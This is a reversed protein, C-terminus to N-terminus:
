VAVVLSRRRGWGMRHHRYKTPPLIAAALSPRPIPSSHRFRPPRIKKMQLSKASLVLPM